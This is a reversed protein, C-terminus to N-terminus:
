RTRNPPETRYPRERARIAPRLDSRDRDRRDGFGFSTALGLPQPNFWPIRDRLASANEPTLPCHYIGARLEGQFSSHDGEICLFKRHTSSDHALYYKTGNSQIESQPYIQM